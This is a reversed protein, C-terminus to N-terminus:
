KVNFVLLKVRIQDSYNLREASSIGSKYGTCNIFCNFWSNAPQHRQEWAPVPEAAVDSEWVAHRHM